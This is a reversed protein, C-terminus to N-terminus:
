QRAADVEDERSFIFCHLSRQPEARFAAAPLLSLKPHFGVPGTATYFDGSWASLSFPECKKDSLTEWANAHTFLQGQYTLAVNCDDSIFVYMNVYFYQGSIKKEM